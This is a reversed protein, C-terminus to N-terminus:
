MSVAQLVQPIVSWTGVKSQAFSALSIASLFALTIIRKM